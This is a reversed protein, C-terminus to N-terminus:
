TLYRRRRSVVAYTAGFRRLGTSGDDDWSLEQPPLDCDIRDLAPVPPPPGCLFEAVKQALAEAETYTSAFVDIDVSAIDNLRDRSGPGRRVRIFPLMQELNPPTEIATHDIGPVLVAVADVLLRQIDPFAYFPATM